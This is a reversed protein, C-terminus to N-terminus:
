KYAIKHLLRRKEADVKKPADGPLLGVAEALSVATEVRVVDERLKWVCELRPLENGQPKLLADQVAPSYNAKIVDRLASLSDPGSICLALAYSTKHADGVEVDLEKERAATKRRTARETTEPSATLTHKTPRMPSTPDSPIVTEVSEASVGNTFDVTRAVQADITRINGRIDRKKENIMSFARTCETAVCEHDPSHPRACGDPVEVFTGSIESRSPSRHDTTTDTSGGEEVRCACM